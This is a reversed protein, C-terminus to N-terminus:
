VAVSALPLLDDLWNRDFETTISLPYGRLPDYMAHVVYTGECYCGNPSCM